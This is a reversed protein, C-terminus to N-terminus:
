SWPDQKKKHTCCPIYCELKRQLECLRNTRTLWPSLSFEFLAYPIMHHQIHSLKPPCTFDFGTCEKLVVKLKSLWALFMHGLRRTLDSVPLVVLNYLCFWCFLFEQFLKLVRSTWIKQNQDMIYHHFLDSELLQSPKCANSFM